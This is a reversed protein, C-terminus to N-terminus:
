PSWLIGYFEYKELNVCWYDVLSHEKHTTVGNVTEFSGGAKM